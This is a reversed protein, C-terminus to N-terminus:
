HEGINPFRQKLLRRMARHVFGIVTNIYIYIDYNHGSVITIRPRLILEVPIHLVNKSVCNHFKERTGSLVITHPIVLKIFLLYSLLLM